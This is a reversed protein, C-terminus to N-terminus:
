WTLSNRPPCFKSLNKELNSWNEGAVFEMGGNRSVWRMWIMENRKMWWGRHYQSLCPRCADKTNVSRWYLTECCKVGQGPGTNYRFIRNRNMLGWISFTQSYCSALWVSKDCWWLLPHFSIFRYSYTHLFPSISNSAHSFPLFALFFKGLNREGLFGRPTVSICVWSGLSPLRTVVPQAIFTGM